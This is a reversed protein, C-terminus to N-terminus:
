DLAVEVVRLASGTGASTRAWEVFILWRQRIHRTDVSACWHLGFAVCCDVRNKRCSGLYIWRSLKLARDQRSALIFTYKPLEVNEVMKGVIVQPQNNTVLPPMVNVDIGDRDFDDWVILLDAPHMVAVHGSRNNIFIYTRNWCNCVFFLETFVSRLSIFKWCLVSPRLRQMM